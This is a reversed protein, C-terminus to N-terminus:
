RKFFVVLLRKYCKACVHVTCLIIFTVYCSTTREVDYEGLCPIHTFFFIIPLCPSLFSPITAFYVSDFFLVSAQSYALTRSFAATPFIVTSFRLSKPFRASKLPVTYHSIPRLPFTDQSIKQGNWGICAVFQSKSIQKIQCFSASILRYKKM